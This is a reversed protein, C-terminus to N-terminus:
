VSRATLGFWPAANSMHRDNTWIETEGLEQATVLHVADAARLFLHDPASLAALGARRLRNEHAPAFRWIGIQVDSEFAAALSKADSVSLLKERVNRHLVCHFEALALASASIPASRKVLARVAAFEAEPLYYKAIYATDFYL